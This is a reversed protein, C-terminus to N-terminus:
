VGEPACDASRIHPFMRGLTITRCRHDLCVAGPAIRSITYFMQQIEWRQRGLERDLFEIMREPSQRLEPYQDSVPRPSGQPVPSRLVYVTGEAETHPIHGNATHNPCNPDGCVPPPIVPQPGSTRLPEGNESIIM